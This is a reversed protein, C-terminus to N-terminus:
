FNNIERWSGVLGFRLNVPTQAAVNAGQGGFRTEYNFTKVPWSVRRGRNINPSDFSEDPIPEKHSSPLQIFAGNIVRDTDQSGPIYNYGWIEITSGEPNYPSVIATNYIHKENVLNSMQYADPPRTPDYAYHARYCNDVKSYLDSKLDRRLIFVDNEPDSDETNYQYVYDDSWSFSGWNQEIWAVDWGNTPRDIGELDFWDDITSSWSTDSSSPMWSADATGYRRHQIVDADTFGRYNDYYQIYQYGTLPMTQPESFDDSLTYVARSTILEAPQWQLDEENEIYTKENIVRQIVAPDDPDRYRESYGQPDLNYNGKVYINNPTVLSLGGDPLREANVLMVGDANADYHTDDWSYDTLDVFIVGNFDQIQGAAITDLLQQIDIELINSPRYEMGDTYVKYASWNWDRPNERKYCGAPNRANYFAKESTCNSINNVLEGDHMGIYIGGNLAKNKIGSSDTQTNIIEGPDIYSGGQSRDQVLTKNEGKENLNNNNLWSEWPQAQQESNLFYADLEEGTYNDVVQAPALDNLLRSRDDGYSLDSWWEMNMNNPTGPDGSWEYGALWFRREWDEGGTYSDQYDQYDHRHNQKWRSWFDDWYETNDDYQGCLEKFVDVENGSPGTPINIRKEEDLLGTNGASRSSEYLGLNKLDENSINYSLALNDNSDGRDGLYKDFEWAAGAGELYYPLTISVPDEIAGTEFYTNGTSFHYNTNRYVSTQLNLPDSATTRYEAVGFADPNDYRGEYFQQTLPRLIYGKDSANSGSSLETLFRFRPNGIFEINGNVHIGGFNRGDITATEFVHTDPYFFLYEFARTLALRQEITRTVGSVTAQSLILVFDAFNPDPMTMVRFNRGAVQFTGDAPSILGGPSTPPSPAALVDPNRGLHTYWQFNNGQSLEHYAFALGSEAEYFARSSNNGLNAARNEHMSRMFTITTFGFLVVVCFYAIILVVGQNNKIPNIM